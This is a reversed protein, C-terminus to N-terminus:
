IPNTVIYKYPKAKIFDGYRESNCINKQSKSLKKYFVHKRDKKSWFFLNKVITPTSDTVRFNPPFNVTIKYLCVELTAGREEAYRKEDESLVAVFSKGRKTKKIKAKRIDKNKLIGGIREEYCM